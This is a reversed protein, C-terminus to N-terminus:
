THPHRHAHTDRDAHRDAKREKGGGDNERGFREVM